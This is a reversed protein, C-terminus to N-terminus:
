SPFGIYIFVYLQLKPCSPSMDNDPKNLNKIQAHPFIQKFIAGNYQTHHTGKFFAQIMFRSCSDYLSITFLTYLNFLSPGISETRDLVMTLDLKDCPFPPASFLFCVLFSIRVMHAEIVARLVGESKNIYM